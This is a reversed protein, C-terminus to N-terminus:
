YLLYFRHIRGSYDALEERILTATVAAALRPVAPWRTRLRKVVGGGWWGAFGGRSERVGRGLPHAGRRAPRRNRARGSGALVPRAAAAASRSDDRRAASGSLIRPRPHLPDAGRRPANPRRAGLGL